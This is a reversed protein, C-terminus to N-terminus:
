ARVCSSYTSFQQYHSSCQTHPGSSERRCHLRIFVLRRPEQYRPLPTLVHARCHTHLSGTCLAQFQQVSTERMLESRYKYYDNVFMDAQLALCEITTRVEESLFPYHLSCLLERQLCRTCGIGHDAPVCTTAKSACETCATTERASCRQVFRRWKRLETEAVLATDLALEFDDYDLDM